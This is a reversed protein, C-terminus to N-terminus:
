ICEYFSLVNHMFMLGTNAEASTVIVM